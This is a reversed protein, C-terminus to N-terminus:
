SYPECWFHPPAASWLTEGIGRQGLMPSWSQPKPTSRISGCRAATSAGAAAATVQAVNSRRRRSSPHTPRAAPAEPRGLRLPQKPPTPEYRLLMAVECLPMPASAPVSRSWAAGANAAAALAASPAPRRRGGALTASAVAAPGFRHACLGGDDRAAGVADLAVDFELGRRLLRSTTPRDPLPMAACVRGGPRAPQPWAGALRPANCSWGNQADSLRLVHYCPPVKATSSPPM